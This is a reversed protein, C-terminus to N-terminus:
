VGNLRRALMRKKNLFDEDTLLGAKHDKELQELEKSSAQKAPQQPKLMGQVNVSQTGKKQNDM